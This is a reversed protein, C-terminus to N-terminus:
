DRQRQLKNYLRSREDYGLTGLPVTELDRCLIEDNTLLSKGSSSFEPFVYASVAWRRAEDYTRHSLWSKGNRLIWDCIKKNQNDDPVFNFNQALSDLWMRYINVADSTALEEVIALAKRRGETSDTNTAEIDALTPAPAQVEVHVERPEKAFDGPQFAKLNDKLHLFATQWAPAVSM